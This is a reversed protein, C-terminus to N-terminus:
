IDNEHFKDVSLEDFVWLAILLACAIGTSLGIINILFVSKNKKINRFFIKLNHKLM